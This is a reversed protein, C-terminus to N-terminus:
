FAESFGVGLPLVVFVVLFLVALAIVISRVLLPETRADASRKAAPPAPSSTSIATM